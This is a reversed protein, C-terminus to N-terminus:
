LVYNNVNTDNRTGFSVKKFFDGELQKHAELTGEMHLEPRPADTTEKIM